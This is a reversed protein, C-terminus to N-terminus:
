AAEKKPLQNALLWRDGLWQVIKLWREQYAPHHPWLIKARQELTM